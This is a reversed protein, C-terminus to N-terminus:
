KQFNKGEIQSKQVTYVIKEGSLISKGKREPTATLFVVRKGTVQFNDVIAKWTKAPWHHAEDVIITCFQNFFTQVNEVIMENEHFLSANSTGGFKQANVIVLNSMQTQKVQHTKDIITVLELFGGQLTRNCIKEIFSPKNTNYGFEDALQKTIIKSPSLILVKSCPLVYPIMTIMGSKGAGTPAVIMAIPYTGDIRRKSDFYDKTRLVAELQYDRFLTIPSLSQKRNNLDDKLMKEFWWSNRQFNSQNSNYYQFYDDQMM